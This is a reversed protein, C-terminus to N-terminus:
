VSPIVVEYSVRLHLDRKCQLPGVGLAAASRHAAARRPVPAHNGGFCAEGASMKGVASRQFCGSQCATVSVRAVENAVM